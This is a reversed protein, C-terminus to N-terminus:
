GQTRHGEERKLKQKEEFAFADKVYVDRSASYAPDAPNASVCVPLLSRRGIFVFESRIGKTHYTYLSLDSFCQKSSFCSLEAFEPLRTNWSSISLILVEHLLFILQTM